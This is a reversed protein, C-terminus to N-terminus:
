KNESSVFFGSNWSTILGTTLILLVKLLRIYYKNNINLSINESQMLLWYRDNITPVTHHKKRNFCYSM